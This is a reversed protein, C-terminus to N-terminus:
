PQIRSPDRLGLNTMIVRPERLIKWISQITSIQTMVSFCRNTEVLSQAGEEAGAHQGDRQLELAQCLTRPQYNSTSHIFGYDRGKLLECLLIIFLLRACSFDLHWEELRRGPLTGNTMVAGKHSTTNLADGMVSSFVSVLSSKQSTWLCMTLLHCFWYQTRLGKIEPGSGKVM